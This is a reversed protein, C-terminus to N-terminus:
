VIPEPICEIEVNKKDKPTYNVSQFEDNITIFDNYGSLVLSKFSLLEKISIKNMKCIKNILIHTGCEQKISIVYFCCLIFSKRSNTKKWSHVACKSFVKKYLDIVKTEVILDLNNMSCINKIFDVEEKITNTSVVRNMRYTKINVKSPFINM